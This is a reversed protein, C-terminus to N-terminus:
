NPCRNSPIACAGPPCTGSWSVPCGQGGPDGYLNCAGGPTCAYNGQLDPTPSPSPATTPQSVSFGAATVTTGAALCYNWGEGWGCGLEADCGLSAIDPDYKDQLKACVRNGQTLDSANDPAYLYPRGYQPDCPIKALSYSSLSPAGCDDLIDTAPYSDTDNYYEEFARRITSLDSKRRADNARNINRKGSTILVLIALIALISMVILLEMLTWGSQLHLRDRASIDM